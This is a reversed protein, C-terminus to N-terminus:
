PGGRAVGKCIVPLTRSCDAESQRIITTPPKGTNDQRGQFLGPLLPKARPRFTMILHTRSTNCYRENRRDSITSAIRLCVHPYGPGVGEPKETQTRVYELAPRGRDTTAGVWLQSIREGAGERTSPDHRKM